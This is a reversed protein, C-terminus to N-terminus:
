FRLSFLNVANNMRKNEQVIIGDIMELYKMLRSFFNQNSKTMQDDDDDDETKPNMSTRSAVCHVLIALTAIVVYGRSAPTM